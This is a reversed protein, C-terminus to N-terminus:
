SACTRTRGASPKGLVRLGRGPRAYDWHPRFNVMEDRPGSTAGSETVRPGVFVNQVRVARLGLAAWNPQEALKMKSAVHGREGRSRAPVRLSRTVVAAPRRDQIVNWFTGRSQGIQSTLSLDRVRPVIYETGIGVDAVTLGADCTRADHDRYHEVVQGGTGVDGRNEAPIGRESRLIHGGRNCISASISASSFAQRTSYFLAM